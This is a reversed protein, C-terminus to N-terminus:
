SRRGGRAKGEGGGKGGNHRKMARIVTQCVREYKM